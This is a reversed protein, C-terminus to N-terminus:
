LKGVIERFVMTAIVNVKLKMNVSPLQVIFMSCCCMRNNLFTNENMKFWCDFVKDSLMFLLCNVLKQIDPVNPDYLESNPVNKPRLDSRHNEELKQSHFNPKQDSFTRYVITCKWRSRM